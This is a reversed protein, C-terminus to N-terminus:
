LCIEIYEDDNAQFSLNKAGRLNIEYKVLEEEIKEISVLSSDSAIIDKTIVKLVKEYENEFM